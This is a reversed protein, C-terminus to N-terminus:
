PTTARGTPANRAKTAQPPAGEMEEPLPVSSMRERRTKVSWTGSLVKGKIRCQLLANEARVCYITNIGYLVEATVTDPVGDSRAPWACASSRPSIGTASKSPLRGTVYLRM